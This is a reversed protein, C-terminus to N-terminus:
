LFPFGVVTQCLGSSFVIFVIHIKLVSAEGKVGQDGVETPKKKTKVMGLVWEEAKQTFRSKEQGAVSNNKVVFALYEQM